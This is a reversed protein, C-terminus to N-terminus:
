NSVSALKRRTYATAVSVLAVYVLGSICSQVLSAPHLITLYTGSVLTAGILTYSVPLKNVSPKVLLYTAFGISSLAIIIHTILIM